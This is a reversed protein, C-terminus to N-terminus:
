NFGGEKLVYKLLDEGFQSATCIEKADVELNNLYQFRIVDGDYLEPIIGAFFFGFQEALVCYQPTHKNTLPLDLYICDMKKRLMEKLRFEILSEFDAGFEQLQLFALALDPLVKIDIITKENKMVQNTIKTEYERNLELNEYIKKIISSHHYPLHVVRHPEENIRHYFLVTTQRQKQKDKIQKFNMSEPAFALLFGTEHAGLSLNGKQTFPHISVAESYLGYMGKSKSHESLFIKMEKFLSRGRYRPDVVAQGSEGVKAMPADKVMALHGVIEDSSNVVICAEILGSELLEKRRDPFYITDNPYSYGYSRYVCRALNVAHSSMMMMFKLPESSDAQPLNKSQEAEEKSVYDEIDRYPLSKILELKKGSRGLNVFNVEDAFAKILLMGLGSNEGSEIKSFDFPLGQDEISIVFKGPKRQFIIEYNGIEGEDFAHEIVNLCAEEVVVELKYISNKDYGLHSSISQVMGVISPLFEKLAILKVRAITFDNQNNYM